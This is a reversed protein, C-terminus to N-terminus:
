KLTKGDKIKMDMKSEDSATTAPVPVLVEQISNLNGVLSDCGGAGTNSKTDTGTHFRM